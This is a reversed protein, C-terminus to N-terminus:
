RQRLRDFAMRLEENKMLEESQNRGYRQAM